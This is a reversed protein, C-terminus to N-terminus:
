WREAKHRLQWFTSQFFWLFTQALFAPADAAAAEDEDEPDLARVLALDPEEEDLLTFFRSTVM